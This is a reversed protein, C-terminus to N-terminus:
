RLQASFLYLDYTWLSLTVAYGCLRAALRRGTIAADQLHRVERGRSRIADDQSSRGASIERVHGAEERDAHGRERNAPATFAGDTVVVVDRATCCLLRDFAEEDVDVRVALCGCARSERARLPATERPQRGGPAARAGALAREAGHPLKRGRARGARERETVVDPEAARKGM